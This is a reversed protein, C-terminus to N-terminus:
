FVRNRLTVTETFVKYVRRDNATITAGGFEYTQPTSSINDARSAVLLSIQVSVVNPWDSTTLSDAKVFRNASRDADTDLGYTIQMNEVGEMVETGAGPSGDTQGLLSRAWLSYGTGSSAQAIYYANSYLRAVLSGAKYQHSSGDPGLYQTRNGTTNGTLDESEAVHEVSTKKGSGAPGTMRFVTAKACDNVFLVEGAQLTQEGTTMKAEGPSHSAVVTEKSSDVGILIIADPLPNIGATVPPHADSTLETPFTSSGGEYGLVPVALNILPKTDANILVNTLTTVDGCGHYGAMRMDRTILETAFRGAEQLRAYDDQYRFGSRMSAYLGFIISTMFLGIALSVLLEVISFGGVHRCTCPPHTM